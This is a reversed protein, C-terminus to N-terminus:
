ALAPAAGNHARVSELSPSGKPDVVVVPMEAAAAEILLRWIVDPV